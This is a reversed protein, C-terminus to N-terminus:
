IKVLESSTGLLIYPVLVQSHHSSDGSSLTLYMTKCSLTLIALYHLVNKM